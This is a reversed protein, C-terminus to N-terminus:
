YKAFTDCLDAYLECYAAYVKDYTQRNQTNPEFRDESEVIQGVAQEVSEWVGTAVGALIAAGLCAADETNKMTAVPLGTLDAKIQCWLKSKAGGGLSRIEEIEIGLAKTADIMRRLTAAISEMIARIVHDKGHHLTLGYLVGKAKPNSEPIGAGQFHPLMLLGGSGPPIGAARKCLIDYSDAGSAKAEAIEQKCFNDRFWRLVMGGTMSFAHMMYTDPMGYYFCPLQKHPDYVPRDVLACVAVNSGTCDSFIGPKINGVGIGGCAQDLAGTTVITRTSLGLEGAVEGQISGVVQGPENIEPLQTENIGLFELMEPWYKRTKINWYTTSCLLSGESVVAGTLRYIFYDEILLFRATKEFVEPENHRIWLIKAAPWMPLMSVQGTREHILENTFHEEIMQSEAEARNDMWVIARRLPNGDEDIPILTEGQASIGLCHIDQCSVKSHRIARDLGKKFADWYVSAEQEVVLPSPSILDYEQTSQSIVAGNEDFLAVKIATTGLDIGLVYRM